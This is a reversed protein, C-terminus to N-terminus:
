QTRHTIERHARLVTRDAYDDSRENAKPSHLRLLNVTQELSFGWDLCTVAFLYDVASRDIEGGEKRRVSGICHEYSPARRVRRRQPRSAASLPPTSTALISQTQSLPPTIPLDALLGDADLEDISALHDHKVSALQVRPFSGDPRRHKEKVNLSGALRGAGSAGKDAKTATILRYRIHELEAKPPPGAFALFAQFNRPSTETICCAHAALIRAVNESIDDLQILGVSSARPRLIISLCEREARELLAPLKARLSTVSNNRLFGANKGIDNKLTVDFSTAGARSLATLMLLGDALPDIIDFSDIHTEPDAM